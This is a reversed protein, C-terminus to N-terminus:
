LTNETHDIINNVYFIIYILFSLSYYQDSRSKNCPESIVNKKWLREYPVIQM